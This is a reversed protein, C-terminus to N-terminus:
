ETTPHGAMIATDGRAAAVGLVAPTLLSGTHPWRRRNGSSWGPSVPAVPWRSGLPPRCVIMFEDGKTTRLASRSRQNIPQRVCSMRDSGTAGSRCGPMGEVPRLRRIEGCDEVTLVPKRGPEVRDLAEPFSGSEVRRGEERWLRQLKKHNVTWGEGRANHYARRFGWRPHQRAYGRLWTRLAADPDAPTQDASRHRPTTRQQGTVRCAFRKIVGTVKMLHHAAARRRGPSLLEGPNSNPAMRSHLRNVRPRRAGAARAPGPFPSTPVTCALNSAAECGM